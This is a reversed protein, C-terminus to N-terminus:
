SSVKKKFIWKCFIHKVGKPLDILTWTNNKEIAEIEIMFAEDWHTPNLSSTLKLFSTQDNEVLYTYFKDGFSTEKRQRKSRLDKCMADRKISQKDHM